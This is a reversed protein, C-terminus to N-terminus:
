PLSRSTHTIKGNKVAEILTDIHVANPKRRRYETLHHLANTKDGLSLHAMGLSYGADTMGGALAKNLYPLAAKPRGSGALFIGYLYNGRPDSPAEALLRRFLTDAKEASGPIDLNHGISNLVGARVLLERNQAPGNTVIDFIKGLTKVDQTARLRDQQTDFQPPFNGAHRALDDLIRDLYVGDLSYKKGAATESTSLIRNLDYRGYERADAALSFLIITLAALFLPMARFGGSTMVTHAGPIHAFRNAQSPTRVIEIM